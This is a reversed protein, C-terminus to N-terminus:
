KEKVELMNLEKLEELPIHIMDEAGTTQNTIRLYTRGGATMLLAKYMFENEIWTLWYSRSRFAKEFHARKVTPKYGKRCLLKVLSTKNAKCYLYRRKPKTEAM